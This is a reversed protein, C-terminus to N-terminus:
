RAPRGGPRNGPGRPKVVQPATEPVPKIQAGDKLGATGQTIIKDGPLVGKTVVWYVGQIRQAEIKRQEAKNGKGVVYMLADGHNDRSVAAQPVLFANQDTAQAFRARVFMGPLLLGEHNPFTARLTVTGTATDVIVESFEVKGTEGYETGDELILRVQASSPTVGKQALLRRLELLKGASQQIDVYIPDLQTIQSLANTQNATVLAGPTVISRGIRGTIPAPITSFRLNIRAIERAARAQAISAEAQRSAAVANTYDQKSVAEIEALPKYREALTHAAEANASASALNAEAQAEAARFPAPDITYLPQGARVMAGETFLRKLIVGSVQPRVDSIQFANTRGPLETTLPVAQPQLIVYGVEKPGM